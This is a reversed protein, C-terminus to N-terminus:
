FFKNFIMLAEVEDIRGSKVLPWTTVESERIERVLFLGIRFDIVKYGLFSLAAMRHNGQLVVFKQEGDANTLWVGQIYSHPHENSTYRKEEM